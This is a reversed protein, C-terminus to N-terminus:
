KKNEAVWADLQKQIEERIAEIGAADLEQIMQDYATSPDLQGSHLAVSYQDVVNQCASIQGAVPAQDPTFGFYPSIEAYNDRWQLYANYKDPEEYVGQYCIYLNPVQDKINNYYGVSGQNLGDPFDVLKKEEDIVQYDEGEIGWVLLNSLEPNIYLENLVAVAQEPYKTYETISWTWANNTAIPVKGPNQPTWIVLENGCRIESESKVTPGNAAFAAASRGSKVNDSDVTLEDYGILGKQSWDWALEAMKKWYDRKFNVEVKADPDFPDINVFSNGLGDFYTNTFPDGNSRVTAQIGGSMMPTIDPYAEKIKVLVEELDALTPYDALDVGITDIIDKRFGYSDGGTTGINIHSLGYRSGEYFCQDGLAGIVGLADQYLDEYPDLNLMYGMSVFQGYMYFGQFIDLPDGSALALNLKNAYDSISVGMIHMTVNFKEETIKSMEEAIRNYAEESPMPSIMLMTLDAHEYEKAPTEDEGASDTSADSAQSSNGGSSSNSGASSGSDQGCAAFVTVLLVLCLLIAIIRKSVKM